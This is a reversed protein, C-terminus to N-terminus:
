QVGELHSTDNICIVTPAGPGFDIVNLAANNVAFRTVHDDPLALAHAIAVRVIVDHTVVAVMQGPHAAVIREIARLGRARVDAYHEGEPMQVQAPRTLWLELLEGYSQAVDAETMGEWQGHHIEALDADTHLTLGHPEAIAAATQVARCLPSAYVAAIPAAALRAGIAAAQRRGLDSLAIDQQGQIIGAQNWLSQGHRIVLLRTTPTLDTAFGLM